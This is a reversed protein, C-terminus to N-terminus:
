IYEDPPAEEPIQYACSVPTIMSNSALTWVDYNSLVSQIQKAAQGAANSASNLAGSTILPQPGPSHTIQTSM